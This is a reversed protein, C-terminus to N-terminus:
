IEKYEAPKIVALKTEEEQEAKFNRWFFSINERSWHGRPVMDVQIDHWMFKNEYFINFGLDTLIDRGLILDYTDKSSKEFM